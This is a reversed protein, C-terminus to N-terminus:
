RSANLRPMVQNEFPIRLFNCLKEMADPDSLNLVLLDDVRHMFYHTIRENHQLYESILRERDYTDENEKAGRVLEQVRWLYGPYIYPDTKLDDVTPVRRIGIRKEIRMSQFRTVSAYWEDPSNRVTLIFKSGPFAADMAQFTYDRSFPSDQFADAKKCYEVLSRFDRKAWDEILLEGEQQNGLRYGLSQLAAGISTTGTKNRGVCFVKKLPAGGSRGIVRKFVNRILHSMKGGFASYVVESVDVM